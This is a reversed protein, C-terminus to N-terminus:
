RTHAICSSVSTRLEFDRELIPQPCAMPATISRYFARIAALEHHYVDGVCETADYVLALDNLTISLFIVCIV